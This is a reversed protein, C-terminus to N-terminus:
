DMKGEARLQEVVESFPIRPEDKAEYAAAILHFDELLNEYDEIPLIVATREGRANTIYQINQSM